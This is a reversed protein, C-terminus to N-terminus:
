FHRPIYGQYRSVGEKRLYWICKQKNKIYWPKQVFEAQTPVKTDNLLQELKNTITDLASIVFVIVKQPLCEM